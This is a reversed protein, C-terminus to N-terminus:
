GAQSILVDQAPQTLRLAGAVAGPSLTVPHAADLTGISFQLVHRVPQPAFGAVAYRRALRTPRLNCAAGWWCYPDPPRPVSMAIVDIQTAREPRTLRHLGPLYLSLPLLDTYHQIAIIRGGPPAPGLARAVSRWDPRQLNRDSAVGAVAVVGVACALAVLATGVARRPLASFGAAVILAAPLWLVLVNRTILDDFGAVLLALCLALGGLAMVVCAGLGRGAGRRDGSRLVPWAAAAVVSAGAVVMAVALLLSRDPAGTGILFQPIVQGLRVSLPLTAIWRDHRTGNQSVALPILALGCLTVAAIARRVGPQHRHEALLWAAQPGVAAVAFYHTALAPVCALAWLGAAQPDPRARLRAFAWLTLACFLVLLEYSRAEQSYWVLLPSTATLAAAMLAARRSFLEGAAAYVVPVVCVGAAASLSRLGAEGFGFIRAWVWAICYYLPPTSESQPILGLMHGPSFHVLLATNAEDFWFGQHGLRYFRLVAALAVVATLVAPTARTALDRRAPRPRATFPGVPAHAHSGASVIRRAYGRQPGSAAPACPM